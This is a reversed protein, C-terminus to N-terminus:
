LKSFVKFCDRSEKPKQKEKEKAKKHFHSKYLKM